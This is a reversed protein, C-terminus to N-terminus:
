RTIQYYDSLMRHSIVFQSGMYGVVGGLGVAGLVGRKHHVRLILIDGPQLKTEEAIERNLVRYVQYRQGRVILMTRFLETENEGRRLYYRVSYYASRKFGTPDNFAAMVLHIITYTGLAAGPEPDLKVFWSRFGKQPIFVAKWQGEKGPMPKTDLIGGPYLYLQLDKQDKKIKVTKVGKPLPELRPAQDGESKGTKGASTEAGSQETGSTRRDEVKVRESSPCGFSLTVAAIVTWWPILRKM